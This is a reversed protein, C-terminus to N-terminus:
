WNKLKIMPGSVACTANPVSPVAAMTPNALVYHEHDMYGFCGSVTVISGKEPLAFPTQARVVTPAFTSIGCTLLVGAIVGAQHRIAM